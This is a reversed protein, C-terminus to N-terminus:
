CSVRGRLNSPRLRKISKMVERRTLENLNTAFFNSGFPTAIVYEIGLLSSSKPIAKARQDVISYDQTTDPDKRDNDDDRNTAFWEGSCWRLCQTKDLCKHEVAKKPHM